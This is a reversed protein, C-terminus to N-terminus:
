WTISSRFVIVPEQRPNFQAVVYSYRTDTGVTTRITLALRSPGSTFRPAPRQNPGRNEREGRNRGEGLVIELLDADMRATDM